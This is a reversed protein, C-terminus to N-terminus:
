ERAALLGDADTTGICEADREGLLGVVQHLVEIDESGDKPLLGDGLEFREFLEHRHLGRFYHDVRLREPLPEPRM